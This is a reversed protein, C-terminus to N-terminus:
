GWSSDQTPTDVFNGNGPNDPRKYVGQIGEVRIGVIPGDTINFKSPKLPKNVSVDGQEKRTNGGSDRYYATARITRNSSGSQTRIKVNGTNGSKGSSESSVSNGNSGVFQVGEIPDVCKVEFSRTKEVSAEGANGCFRLEFEAEDLEDCVVSVLATDGPCLVDDDMECDESEEDNSESEKRGDCEAVIEVAENEIVVTDVDDKDEVVVSLDLPSAFQNQIRVVDTQEGLPVLNATQNLGLYAEDDEVVNVSVGREASVNSFAGTGVSMAGSSAGGLLLILTRRKM